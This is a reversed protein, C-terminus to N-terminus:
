PERRIAKNKIWKDICKRWDTNGGHMFEPEAYIAPAAGIFNIRAADRMASQHSELNGAVEELQKVNDKQSQLEVEQRAVKRELEQARQEWKYATLREDDVAQKWELTQREIDRLREYEEIPLTVTIANM